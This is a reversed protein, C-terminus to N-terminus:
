TLILFDPNVISEIATVSLVKVEILSYQNITFNYCHHETPKFLVQLYLHCTVLNMDNSCSQKNYM